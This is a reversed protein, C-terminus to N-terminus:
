NKISFKIDGTSTTVECRGGTITKPVDKKGTDTDIIFVKETLLSGTVNGTSTNITIENADSNELKVNGTSTNIVIENANLNELKVDGTSREICIKEETIVNKLIVDGTKGNSTVNKCQINSLSIKGTSVSVEISNLIADGIVVDGTSTTIKTENSVTAYFSCDGTSLSINANEFKFDKPIEIDGTSAKIKLSNFETKPLYITINPSSFSIDLYEYWKRSDVVEVTLVGNSLTTLHKIKTKEYCVVKCKETESPLLVIKATDTKISLDSIEEDFEYTNTQYNNTNLKSFDWNSSAIIIVFIICGVLILLTAIILLLKVSKNM